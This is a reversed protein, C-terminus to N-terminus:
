NHIMVRLTTFMSFANSLYQFITFKGNIWSRQIIKEDCNHCAFKGFLLLAFLARASHMRNFANATTSINVCETSKEANEIETWVM